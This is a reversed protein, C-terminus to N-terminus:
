WGFLSKVGSFGGSVFNTVNNVAQAANNYTATAIQTGQNVASSVFNSVTEYAQKGTQIVNNFIQKGTEVVTSVFQKASNVVNSVVQVAKSAYNAVQNFVKSATQIVPNQMVSQAISQAIEKVKQQSKQVIQTTQKDIAQKFTQYSAQAQQVVATATQYASKAKAALEQAKKNAEEAKQKAAEIASDVASSAASWGDELPKSLPKLTTDWNDNVWKGALTGLWGGVFGGVITAGPIPIFSFAAAGLVTGVTDFIGKVAIERKKTPDSTAFFEYALPALGLAAGFLGAGKIAKSFSGSVKTPNINIRAAQALQSIKVSFTPQKLGPLVFGKNGANYVTRYALFDDLNNSLRQFSSLGENVYNSFQGWRPFVFSNAGPSPKGYSLGFGIASLLRQTEGTGLIFATQELSNKLPDPDGLFKNFIYSPLSDKDQLVKQTMEYFFSRGDPQIFLQGKAFQYVTVGNSVWNGMLLGPDGYKQTIGNVLTQFAVRQRQQEAEIQRLEEEARRAAEQAQRLEEAARRAAAEAQRIAEQRQREQEAQEPNNDIYGSWMWNNTGAIRYWRNSAIGLVTDTYGGGNNEYADFAISEGPYKIGAQQATTSPGSRIRQYGVLTVDGINMVRGSFAPVSVWVPREGPFLNDQGTWTLPSLIPVPQYIEPQTKKALEVAKALNVSGAGTELDWGPTGLDTATQKLINKIQLYNLNPNNAWAQSAAGTVQATAVSTGAMWGLGLDLPPSTSANSNNPTQVDYGAAKLIDQAQILNQAVNEDFAGVFQSLVDVQIGYYGDIYELALKQSAEALYENLLQDIEQTAENYVQREEPTFTELEAEDVSNSSGFVDGFIQRINKAMEDDPLGEDFTTSSESNPNVENASFQGTLNEASSNNLQPKLISVLNSDLDYKSTNDTQGSLPAFTQTWQLNLEKLLLTLDAGNGVTSMVPEDTTGGYAVIDLGYGFSSYNARKGNYDIAGVTIINDFEQSAQGLASMTGGDNGAAAVILVGNQRAYELARREAPTFEYRTTVTGAPNLQTLDFSLNAIAHPQGMEKAANVFDVLAQAWKGSGVARQIYIPAQDNIGDIGIGNDQTAAIIGAIHTGHQNGEGSQLIPNGDGAVYDSGPGFHINYPNIDPNSSLGTDILGILPQNKPPQIFRMLNQGLDTKRWDLDADIMKDLKVAVGTAGRVQFIMDNYDLDSGGDLRLDEMTFTRGNGNVDAIQGFQFARNPNASVMSFLPRLEGEVNPTEFIQQITGNPALVVGFRSGPRMSFTRVGLYDGANFDDEWPLAGGFRAGDTQDSIVVHGLDSNSLARRVAEQIFESTGLGLADLGDLSFIALEGQYGGGDFLYDIGVQGTSGVTFVGSAIPLPDGIIGFNPNATEWPFKPQASRNSSYSEVDLGNASTRKLVDPLLSSQLDLPNSANEAVM